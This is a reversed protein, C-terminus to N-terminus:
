KPLQGLLWERESLPQITRIEERLKQIAKPRDLRLNLLKQTMKLNNRYVRSHYSYKRRSLLSRTARIFDRLVEHEDTEYYIRIQLQRANMLHLYDRYDAKQLHRLASSYDKQAYALRAQNLAIVEEATKPPLVQAYQHMFEQAFDIKGLRISIGMINNFTFTSIRRQDVLLQQQLGLEYLSFAQELHATSPDENLQRIALNLLLKLLDRQEFYSFNQLQKQLLAILQPFALPPHPPEALYYLCLQYYILLGPHQLQARHQEILQLFSDLLPQKAVEKSFPAAALQLVASRLGACLQALLLQGAAGYSQKLRRQSDLTIEQRLEEVQYLSYLEQADLCPSKEYQALQRNIRNNLHRELGLQRYAQLLPLNIARQKINEEQQQWALYDEIRDLLYSRLLRTTSDTTSSIVAKSEELRHQGPPPLEECLAEFLSLIDARQNHLPCSLWNKIRKRQNNDLSLLLPELLNKAM